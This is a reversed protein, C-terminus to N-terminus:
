EMPFSASNGLPKVANFSDWCFAKLKAVEGSSNDIPVSIYFTSGTPVDEIRIYMLGKFVDNATYQALIIVTDRCLSVNTLSVTAFFTSKPITPVIKGTLDKVVISNIILDFTEEEIKSNSWKAYLTTGNLPMEFMDVKEEFLADMYWGEFVNDGYTPIPLEITAGYKGKLTMSIEANIVLNVDYVNRIYYRSLVLSNDKKVIGSHVGMSANETFGSHNKQTAYVSKGINSTFYEKEYNGYGDGDANEFYHYEVYFANGSLKAGMLKKFQEFNINCEKVYENLNSEDIDLMIGSDTALWVAFGAWHNIIEADDPVPVVSFDEFIMCSLIMATEANTLKQNPSFGGRVDATIYEMEWMWIAADYYQDGPQIDKFPNKVDSADVDIELVEVIKQSMSGRTFTTENACVIQASFLCLLLIVGVNVLRKM